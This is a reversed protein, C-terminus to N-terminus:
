LISCASVKEWYKLKSFAKNPITTTENKWRDHEKRLQESNENKCHIGAPNPILESFEGEIEITKEM